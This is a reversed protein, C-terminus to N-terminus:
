KMRRLQERFKECPDINDVRLTFWIYDFAPGMGPVGAAYPAPDHQDHQVELVGLVASSGPEEGLTRLHFPVGRDRRVHGNGAILVAGDTHGRMSRALQGDRLQQARVM